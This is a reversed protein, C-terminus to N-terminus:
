PIWWRVGNSLKQRWRLRTMAASIRRQEATGLRPVDIHLAQHAVQLVTTRSVTRLYAAITDEWADTEYRANQEPAIYTAEFGRDPWWPEKNRYRVVAEAFLHDRERIIAQLDIHGIKAPWFRRGGTEDGRVTKSM